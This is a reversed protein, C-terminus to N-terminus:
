TPTDASDLLRRLRDADARATVSRTQSPVVAGAPLGKPKRVHKRLTYVVDVRPEGRAKSFHVALTAADLLTELSATKNKPLRVVVHSGPRGGGVHLWLDNGNAFRMTLEDNQNNNRGVYVPYGEASTFRRFPTAPEKRKSGAKAPRETPPPLLGLEVMAARAADLPPADPGTLDSLVADIRRLSQEASALREEAVGRGQELRRAKDYLKEAQEHVSARPDLPIVVEEEGDGTPATMSSAGREVQHAYTLMLDARGRLEDARGVDELQRRLGDVKNQLKKHARRATVALDKAGQAQERELDLATFHADIADLRPPAFRPAP